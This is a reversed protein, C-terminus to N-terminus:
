NLFNGVAHEIDAFRYPKTVLALAGLEEPDYWGGTAIVFPVRKELLRAAVPDAQKGHLTLDLFVGDFSHVELTALAAEVNACVEAVTHGLEDLMEELLMSLLPEDEVIM